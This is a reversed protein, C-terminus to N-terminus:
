RLLYSAHQFTPPLTVSIVAFNSSTQFIQLSLGKFFLSRARACVRMSSHNSSYDLFTTGDSCKIDSSWLTYSKTDGIDGAKHADIINPIQTINQIFYLGTNYRFGTQIQTLVRPRLNAVRETPRSNAGVCVSERDRPEERELAQLQLVRLTTPQKFIVASWLKGPLGAPAAKRGGWVVRQVRQSRCYRSCTSISKRASVLPFWWWGLLGHAFWRCLDFRSSEILLRMRKERSCRENLVPVPLTSPSNCWMMAGDAGASSWCSPAFYRSDCALCWPSSSTTILIVENKDLRGIFRKKKKMQQLWNKSVPHYRNGSCTQTHPPTPPPSFSTHM